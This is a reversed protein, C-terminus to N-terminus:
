RLLYYKVEEQLTLLMGRNVDTSSKAYLQRGTGLEEVQLIKEDERVRRIYDLINDTYRLEVSDVRYEVVFRGLVSKIERYLEPLARVDQSRYRFTLGLEALQKSVKDLYKTYDFGHECMYSILNLTLRYCEELSTVDVEREDECTSHYINWVEELCSITVTPIGELEFNMSDYYPITIRTRDQPVINRINLLVDDSGYLYVKRGLVDLNIVFYVTDLLRRSKLFNMYCRSGWAWYLSAYNPIGFEEATFFVVKVGINSSLTYDTLERALAAALGVGLANDMICGLWHDYHATIYLYKEGEHVTVEVNYGIRYQYDVEVCVRVSEGLHKRLYEGIKKSVSVVPIKVPNSFSWTYDRRSSVVIRRFCDQHDVFIVASAGRNVADIVIFKADDVDKPYNVILIDGERLKGLDGVLKGEAVGGITYPQALCPYVEGDRTEIVAYKEQWSLVQVPQLHFTLLPHDLEELLRQIFIRERHSGAVLDIYSSCMRAIKLITKVVSM